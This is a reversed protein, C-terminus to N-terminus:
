TGAVGFEADLLGGPILTSRAPFGSSRVPKIFFVPVRERFVIAMEDTAVDRIGTCNFTLSYANFGLRGSCLFARGNALQGKASYSDGPSTVLCVHLWENLRAGSPWRTRLRATSDFFM